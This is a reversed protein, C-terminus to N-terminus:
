VPTWIRMRDLQPHYDKVSFDDSRFETISDVDPNLHLEPLKSDETKLIKNVASRQDREPDDTFYLHADSISYVLEKPEYGTVQAVMLLVASYQILNAAVGVPVDGSRQVHYLSIKNQAPYVKFHMFGHCPTVTVKQQKGEGRTIYFPIWPVVIHTRLHPLEQIQEVVHQIQNFSSGDPKPFETFAPGYSGPGLDGTELGRKKCKRETAWPGWWHCGFYKLEKLTRAGNFFALIEDIAQKFIPNKGNVVDREQIIPLGNEVPFRWHVRGFVSLAKADQTPDDVEGDNLILRLGDKYQTDIIREDFPKYIDM